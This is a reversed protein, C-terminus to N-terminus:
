DLAEYFAKLTPFGQVQNASCIARPSDQNCNVAYFEADANQIFLDSAKSYHPAFRQCHPCWPAYMDVFVVGKHRLIQKFADLTRIHKVSASFELDKNDSSKAAAIGLLLSWSARM